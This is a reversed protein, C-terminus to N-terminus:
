LIPEVKITTLKMIEDDSYVAKLKFEYYRKERIDRVTSGFYILEGQYSFFHNSAPTLVLSCHPWDNDIYIVHCEDMKHQVDNPKGYKNIFEQSRYMNVIGKINITAKQPNPEFNLWKDEEFVLHHENNLNDQISFNLLSKNIIYEIPLQFVTGGKSNGHLRWFLGNRMYFTLNNGIDVRQYGANVKEYEEREEKSLSLSNFTRILEAYFKQCNDNPKAIVKIDIINKSGSQYPESTEISYDFLGMSAIEKLKTDLHYIAAYENEKNLQRIKKNMAFTAGALETQSGKNQAYSVLNDISVTARISVAKNGSKTEEQSLIKYSKVVGRSVSVIEDKVIEDNLITTNASVFTGFSQEIASRLASQTARDITKGEGFVVLTIVRSAESMNNNQVGASNTGSTESNHREETKIITENSSLIINESTFEGEWETGSWDVDKKQPLGRRRIEDDKMYIYQQMSIDKLFLINRLSKGQYTPGNSKSKTKRDKSLGRYLYAFYPSAKSGPQNQANIQCSITNQESFICLCYAFLCFIIKRM